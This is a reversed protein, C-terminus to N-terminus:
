KKRFIRFKVKNETKNMLREINEQHRFVIILLILACFIPFYYDIPLQFVPDKGIAYLILSIAFTIGASLLSGLSVYRSSLVISFFAVMLIPLLWPCFGLIAGSSTAVAKGGKFKLFVPFTHGIVALLGYLLPTEIMYTEPIIKFRFLFVFLGGKTMDLIYALIAYKRGLVRGVNTSGINRSGHERIDIGKAKGILFGFPISGLLYSALLLLIKLAADM